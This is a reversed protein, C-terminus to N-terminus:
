LWPSDGDGCTQQDASRTTQLEFCRVAIQVCIQVVMSWEKGRYWTVSTLAKKAYSAESFPTSEKMGHYIYAM